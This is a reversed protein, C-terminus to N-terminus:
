TSRTVGQFEIWVVPEDGVVWGDHGPAIRFVDGPEIETTTGDDHEIQLRGGVAYGIHEVQCRDAGMAPGICESWRWGSEFTTRQIRGGALGVLEITTKDMMKTEDPQDFSRSEIGPM